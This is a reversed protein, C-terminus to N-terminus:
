PKTGDVILSTYNLPGDKNRRDHNASRMIHGQEPSWPEAHFKGSEDWWEVLRVRFGAADMMPVLTQCTHLIKHDDAGAGTGGPRVHERYQPSPHFGDPVAIRLTGGSRLFEFCNALATHATADDLHEWVHEACFAVRTGPAWYRRFQARQSLDLTNQDTSFWGEQETYGAGLLIRLADSAPNAPEPDIVSPSGPARCAARWNAFRSRLNLSALLSM